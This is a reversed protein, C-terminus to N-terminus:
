RNDRSREFVMWDIATSHIRGQYRLQTYEECLSKASLKTTLRSADLGFRKPLESMGDLVENASGYEGSRNLAQSAVFGAMAIEERSEKCYPELRVIPKLHFRLFERKYYEAEAAASGYNVQRDNLYGGPIRSPDDAHDKAGQLYTLANMLRAEADRPVRQEYLWQGALWVSLVNSLVLASLWKLSGASRTSSKWLKLVSSRDRNPRIVESSPAALEAPIPRALDIGLPEIPKADMRTIAEKAAFALGCGKCTVVAGPQPEAKLRGTKGCTPCTLQIM